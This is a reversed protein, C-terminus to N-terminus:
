CGELARRGLFDGGAGLHEEIRLLQNYKCVRDTRGPAGTKILGCNTAVALDAITTDETEGSRHSVVNLYGARDAVLMVDLTESLTGIQNLKILIANAVNREIGLRLREVNTVFIDDGILRIRDGLRKTMLSWGDWDEQAMGDEIVVIPFDNTLKEYYDVLDSANFQRGEGPFHYGGDKYLESSAVDMALAIDEGPEYGAKRIAEVIVELAEGSNALDPAFGGEDGLGTDKGETKLVDRLTHYVEVGMSLADRFSTAGWPLIMFEQIDLNNAAHAGGNLINMMPLPLVSARIGGLYEFLHLGLSDCAARASALSVGLIANAGLRSKDSTGDLDILFHDIDYQRSANMGMMKPAIESNVNRVADTVGKGGHRPGGDRLELAEFEGTSAGSPVAARGSGGCALGIEVEVTPNGRSDLIERGKVEVIDMDQSILRDEERGPSVM